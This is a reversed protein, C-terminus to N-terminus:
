DIYWVVVYITANSAAVTSTILIYDTNYNYAINFVGGNFGNYNALEINVIKDSTLGLHAAVSGSGTNGTYSSGNQTNIVIKEFSITVRKLTKSNLSSIAM